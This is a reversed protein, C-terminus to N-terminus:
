LKPSSTAFIANSPKIDRHVPGHQHLHALAPTLSPGIQVCATIPLRGHQEIDHRLTHPSYVRVNCLISCTGEGQGEGWAKHLLIAEAARSLSRSLPFAM